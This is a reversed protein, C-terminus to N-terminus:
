YAYVAGGDTAAEDPVGGIGTASGDEMSAGVFLNNASGSLAISEGFNDNLTPNSSKLYHTQSWPGTGREFLYVAGTYQPPSLPQAQDIGSSIGAELPAGVALFKGDNSIALAAGFTAFNAFNSARLTLPAGWVNTDVDRDYVYVAGSDTSADGAGDDRPAGIVLTSNDPAIAIDSGFYDSAGPSPAKLFAQQTWNNPLMEYLVYVAGSAPQVSSERTAGVVLFQGSASFRVPFGFRAGGATNTPKFYDPTQLFLGGSGDHRRYLYVAGSDPAANSTFDAQFTGTGASDEYQAGVALLNGDPSLACAGFGDGPGTNLAKLYAGQTWTGSNRTFVYVAGSDAASNDAPNGNSNTGGGDEGAAGVALTNGFGDLSVAGGFGDGAGANGAKLYAQQVWGTSSRAFVYVAGSGALSNNPGDEDPAGIALTSGDLSIAMAAGFHDNAGTNSAKIYGIANGLSNGIGAAPSSVCVGSDCAEVRYRANIRRYLAIEHDYGTANGAVNLDVASFDSAGDPDEYVRWHSIVPTGGGPAATATWALHLNRIGQATVSVGVTIDTCSLNINNVFTTTVGSANALTCHQTGPMSAITFTYNGSPAVMAWTPQAGILTFQGGSFSVVVEGRLGTITGGFSVNQPVCTVNATTINANVTGSGNAVTCIQGAPQTLVTVSYSAGSSARTTFAFSGNASVSLNNGGNNQLVVTGNLGAATGGVTYTPPAPPPTSSGGGGGGGCSALMVAVCVSSAARVARLRYVTM